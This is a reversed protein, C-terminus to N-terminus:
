FIRHSCLYGIGLGFVSLTSNFGDHLQLRLGSDIHVELM